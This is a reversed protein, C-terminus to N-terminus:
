RECRSCLQRACTKRRREVGSRGFTSSKKDESTLAYSVVPLGDLRGSGVEPLRRDLRLLRDTGSVEDRERALRAQPMPFPRPERIGFM